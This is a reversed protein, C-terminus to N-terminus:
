NLRVQFAILHRCRGCRSKWRFREGHLLCLRRTKWKINEAIKNEKGRADIFLPPRSVSLTSGKIQKGHQFAKNGIKQMNRMAQVETPLLKRNLSQNERRLRHPM